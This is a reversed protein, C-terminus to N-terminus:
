TGRHDATNGFLLIKWSEKKLKHNVTTLWNGHQRILTGVLLTVNLTRVHEEKFEHSQASIGFMPPNLVSEDKALQRVKCSDGKQVL